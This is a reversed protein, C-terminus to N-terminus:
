RVARLLARPLDGPRNWREGQLLRGHDARRHPVRPRGPGRREHHPQGRRRRDQRHHRDPRGHRGGRAARLRPEKHGPLDPHPGQRGHARVEEGLRAPGRLPRGRRRSRDHGEDVRLRQPRWRVRGRRRRRHPRVLQHREQGRLPPDPRGEALGPQDEQRRAARQQGSVSEPGSVHAGGPQCRGCGALRLPLDCRAGGQGAARGSQGDLGRPGARLAAREHADM